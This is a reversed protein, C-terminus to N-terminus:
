NKENQKKEELKIIPKIKELRKNIDNLKGMVIDIERENCYFKEIQSYMESIKITCGEEIKPCGEIGAYYYGILNAIEDKSIECIFNGKNSALIKM